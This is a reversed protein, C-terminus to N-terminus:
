RSPTLRPSEGVGGLAAGGGRGGGVAPPPPGGPVVAAPPPARAPAVGVPAPPPGLPPAAARPPRPPRASRVGGRRAGAGGGASCGLGQLLRGDAGRVSSANEITVAPAFPDPVTATVVRNPAPLEAFRAFAARRARATAALGTDGDNEIATAIEEVTLYFVDL